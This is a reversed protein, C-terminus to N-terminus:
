LTTCEAGRGEPCVLFGDDLGDCTPDFGDCISQLGWPTECFLPGFTSNEQIWNDGSFTYVGELRFRLSPCDCGADARARTELMFIAVGFFTLLCLGITARTRSRVESARVPQCPQM